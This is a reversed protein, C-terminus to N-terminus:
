ILAKYAATVSQDGELMYNIIADVVLAKKEPGSKKFQRFSKEVASLLSSVLDELNQNM